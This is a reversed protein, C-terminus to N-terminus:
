AADQRWREQGECHRGLRGRPEEAYGARPPELAPEACRGLLCYRMGPRGQDRGRLGEALRSVLSHQYLMAQNFLKQAEPKCSTEFNVKGFKSDNQAIAPQAFLALATLSIAISSKSM